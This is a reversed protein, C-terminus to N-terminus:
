HVNGTIIFNTAFQPNSYYSSSLDFFSCLWPVEQYGTTPVLVFPSKAIPIHCSCYDLSMDSLM